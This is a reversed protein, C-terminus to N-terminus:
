PQTQGGWPERTVTVPISKEAFSEGTRKSWSQLQGNSGFIFAYVSPVWSQEFSHTDRSLFTLRVQLSGDAMHFATDAPWSSPSNRAWADRVVHQEGRGSFVYQVGGNPDALVALKEALGRLESDSVPIPTLLSAAQALEPNQFGGLPFIKGGSAGVQYAHWHDRRIWGRHIVLKTGVRPGQELIVATSDVAFSDPGVALEASAQSAVAARISAPSGEQTLDLKGRTCSTLALILSSLERLVRSRTLM